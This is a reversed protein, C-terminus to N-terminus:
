RMIETPESNRLQQTYHDIFYRLNSGVHNDMSGFIIGYHYHVRRIKDCSLDMIFNDVSLSFRKSDIIRSDTSFIRMGGISIDILVACIKKNNSEIKIDLGERPVFRQYKRIDWLLTLHPIAMLYRLLNEKISM